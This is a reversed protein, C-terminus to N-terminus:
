WLFLKIFLLVGLVISTTGVYARVHKPKFKKVAWVAFPTAVLGGLLIAGNLYWNTHLSNVIMYVLFGVASVIGETFATMSVAVKGKVGSLMQGGALVPGFGGGSVGKNFSAISGFTLVRWLSFDRKDTFEFLVSIGIGIMLLGIYSKLWLEPVSLATFAGIVIAIIGCTILVGLIRVNRKRLLNVNHAGHHLLGATFSLVASALIVAPVVEKVPLGILLLIPTLTGFGMGASADLFQFIFAILTLILFFGIEMSAFLTSFYKFMYYM